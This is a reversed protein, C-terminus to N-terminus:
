PYVIPPPPLPVGAGRLPNEPDLADIKARIYARRQLKVILERADKLQWELSDIKRQLFRIQKEPEVM